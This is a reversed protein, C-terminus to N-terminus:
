IGCGWLLDKLVLDNKKQGSRLLLDKLRSVALPPNPHSVLPGGKIRQEHPQRQPNPSNGWLYGVYVENVVSIM